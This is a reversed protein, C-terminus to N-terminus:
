GSKDTPSIPPWPQKKEPASPFSTETNGYFSLADDVMLMASPIGERLGSERELQAARMSRRHLETGAYAIAAVISVAILLFRLSFRFTEPVDAPPPALAPSTIASEHSNANSTAHVVDDHM